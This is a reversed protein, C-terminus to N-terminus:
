AGILNQGCVRLVEGSIGSAGPTSFFVVAEAVDLPLGGQNLANFRRAVERIATPMAATMRTEIFGPALANVTIERSAAVKALGKVGGILGAKAAAYNTQGANGAIGGISAMSIIRGGNPMLMQNNDSRAALIAESLKLPALLNIRVADDWWDRPMRALTKDRTIGANNVLIDITSHHAQLYNVITSVAAPELLDVTLSSGKIETMLAQLNDRAAPRDHGIVTAGEEALRRAIAAGIGQAAGTVLAVKGLLSQTFPAVEAGAAAGVRLCQGSIFASRKSLFFMLPGRLAEPTDGCKGIQLVQVTAGRRGIEKGLSKVFGTLASSVAAAEPTTTADTACGLIVIHCNSAILSLRPRMFDYLSGLDDISTAQSMDFVISNLKPSSILSPALEAGAGGVLESLFNMLKSNRTGGIASHHGSLEQESWPATARELSEPLPLPLKLQKVLRRAFPRRSVELLLDSM